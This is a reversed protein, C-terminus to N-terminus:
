EAEEKEGRTMGLRKEFDARLLVFAQSYGDRCWQVALV